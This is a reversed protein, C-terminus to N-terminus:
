KKLYKNVLEDISELTIPKIICESFGEKQYIQKLSEEYLSTMIVIPPLEISNIKKLSRITEVGDMEPMIYDLIILDYNHEEKLKQICEKGNSILDINIKYLELLKQILRLDLKNDDVVLARCNSCDFMSIDKIISSDNFNMEKTLEDSIIRQPITLNIELENENDNNISISAGLISSLRKIILLELGIEQLDLETSESQISQELKRALEKNKKIGITRINFELISNKEGININISEIPNLDIISNFLNVIIQYIKQRDGIYKLHINEKVNIHIEANLSDVISITYNHIDSALSIIDYEIDEIKEQDSEIKSYTIINSILEYLEKSAKYINNVDDITENEDLTQKEVINESLGIIANMPTRIEHSMKSLFATKSQDANEAKKRAVELESVLRIDQNEITFYLAVILFSFLFGVDSLNTYFYQFIKMISFLIFYLIIPLRRIVTLRDRNAAFVRRTSFM